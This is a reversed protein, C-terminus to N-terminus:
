NRREKMGARIRPIGVKAPAVVKRLHQAYRRRPSHGDKDYVQITLLHDVQPFQKDSESFV